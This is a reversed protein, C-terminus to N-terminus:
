QTSATEYFLKILDFNQYIKLNMKTQQTSHQYFLNLVLRTLQDAGTNLLHSRLIYGFNFSFILYNNDTYCTSRILTEMIWSIFLFSRFIAIILLNIKEYAKLIASKFRFYFSM